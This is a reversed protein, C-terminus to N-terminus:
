SKEIPHNTAKPNEKSKKIACDFANIRNKKRKPVSSGKGM